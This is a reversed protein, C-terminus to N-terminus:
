LKKKDSLRPRNKDPLWKLFDANFLAQIVNFGTFALEKLATSDEAIDLARKIGELKAREESNFRVTIIDARPKDNVRVSYFLRDRRDKECVPCLAGAEKESGCVDCVVM